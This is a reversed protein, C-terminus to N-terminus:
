RGWREDVGHPVEEIDDDLKLLEGRPLLNMPVREGKGRVHCCPCPDKLKGHHTIGCATCKIVYQKPRKIKM